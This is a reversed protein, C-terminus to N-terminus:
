GRSTGEKPALIEIFEDCATQIAEKPAMGRWRVAQSDAARRVATLANRVGEAHGDQFGQLRAEEIDLLHREQESLMPECRLLKGRM